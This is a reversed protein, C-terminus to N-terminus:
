EDDIDNYKSEIEEGFDETDYYIKKNNQPLHKISIERERVIKKEGLNFKINENKIKNNIACLCKNLLLDCEENNKGEVIIKYQPSNVYEIRINEDIYYLIDRLKDIANDCYVILNFDQHITMTTSSIRSTMNDLFNNSESPFLKKSGEFFNDPNELISKYKEQSTELNEKSMVRWMTLPLISKMMINCMSSFESTLRYMRDVYQFYKIYKDREDSKIKRHSLDIQYKKYGDDNDNDDDDSNDNYIDINTVMMPFVKNKIFYKERIYYIKRDLEKNILFGEKNNYEILKCYIGHETVSSIKVFVVEDIEPYNKNYYSM